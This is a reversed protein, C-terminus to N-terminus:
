LSTLLVVTSEYILITLSNQSGYSKLKSLIGTERKKTRKALPTHVLSIICELYCQIEFCQARLYKRIWKKWILIAQKGLSLEKSKDGLFM